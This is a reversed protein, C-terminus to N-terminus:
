IETLFACQKKAGDISWPVSYISCISHIQKQWNYYDFKEYFTNNFESVFNYFIKKIFIMKLTKKKKKQRYTLLNRKTNKSYFAWFDM